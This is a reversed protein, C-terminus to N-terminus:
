QKQHFLYGMPFIIVSDGMIDRACSCASSARHSYQSSRGHLSAHGALQEGASKMMAALTPFEDSILREAASIMCALGSPPTHPITQGSVNHMAAQVWLFNSPAMLM